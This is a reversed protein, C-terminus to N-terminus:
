RLIIAKVQLDQGSALGPDRRLEENVAKLLRDRRLSLMSRVVSSDLTCCLVGGRLCKDITHEAAGSVKDWAAFIRTEDLGDGLRMDRICAEILSEMMVPERRKLVIFDGPTVREKRMGKKRDMMKGNKQEDHEQEIRLAEQEM